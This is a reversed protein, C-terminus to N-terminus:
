PGRACSAARARRRSWSWWSWAVAAQAAHANLGASPRAARPDGRRRGRSPHVPRQPRRRRDRDPQRRVAARRPLLLRRPPARPCRDGYMAVFPVDIHEAHWPANAGLDTLEEVFAVGEARREAQVSEPLAEWREDGVMRRMFREAADEAVGHTAAGRRGSHQGAVVDLWSLPVEYVAVARVLEPDASPSRRARRQRRLQPRVRVARRGDLLTSSTPSTPTWRSRARTRSRAATAGGTTACCATTTTSAGRCCCCRRRATWRATCSCSSRRRPRAWRTAGSGRRDSCVRVIRM